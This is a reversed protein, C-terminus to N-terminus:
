RSRRARTTQVVLGNGDPDEVTIFRGWPQEQPGTVAVGHERLRQADAELDDTELVLGRLSGAPMTDFWTVLTVSTAAGPLALQVWRMSGMQADRVVEFGLADRYWDRSRDQDSVPISLLQVNTVTM